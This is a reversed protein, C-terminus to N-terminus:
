STHSRSGTTTCGLMLPLLFVFYKPLWETYVKVGLRAALWDRRSAANTCSDPTTAPTPRVRRGEDWVLGAHRAVLRPDMRPVLCDECVREPEPDSRDTTSARTAHSVPFRAPTAAKESGCSRQLLLPNVRDCTDLSPSGSRPIPSYIVHGRDSSAGVTATASRECRLGPGARDHRFARRPADECVMHHEDTRTIPPSRSDIGVRPGQAASAAPHLLRRQDM